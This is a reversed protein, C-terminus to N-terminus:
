DVRELYRQALAAFDVRGRAEYVPVSQLVQLYATEDFRQDDSQFRGDRHQFFPGPSKMIASLLDRRQNLDVAEVQLPQDTDRQWNLVMFAALPRFATDVRGEGYLRPIDADYKQELEWLEAAPLQLLAARESAPILPQLRPNHVITGPNIRPMKPIGAALVQDQQPRIFLRDNSLFASGQQEMLQLMLTSKGGGSFGAMAIAKGNRSLAAAHCNLWGNQQLWNMYQNNIFNIVQNDNQLCPGAAIRHTASQLFTMGTRVKHIVRAGPLDFCADKRGQKGPERRWDRYTLGLDPAECQYAQLRIDVAGEDVLHAFYDALRALLAASNSEVGIRLGELALVLTDGTAQYGASLRAALTELETTM